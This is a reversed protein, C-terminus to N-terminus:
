PLDKASPVACLLTPRSSKRHKQEGAALSIHPFLYLPSLRVEPHGQNAPLLDSAAAGCVGASLPPVAGAHHREPPWPRLHSPKPAGNPRPSATGSTLRLRPLASTPARRHGLPPPPGAEHHRREPPLLLALGPAPAKSRRRSALQPTMQPPPLGSPHAGHPPPQPSIPTRKTLRSSHCRPLPMAVRTPM